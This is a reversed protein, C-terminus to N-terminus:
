QDVPDESQADAIRQLQSVLTRADQPRVAILIRSGREPVPPHAVALEEGVDQGTDLSLLITHDPHPVASNVIPELAHTETAELFRIILKQARPDLPGPSGYRTQVPMAREKRQESVGKVCFARIALAVFM